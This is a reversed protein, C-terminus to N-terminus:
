DGGLLNATLDSPSREQMRKVKEIAQEESLKYVRMHYEVQDIVGSSLELLAVKRIETDDEFISDDFNVTIDLNEIDFSQGDFNNAIELVSYTLDVLARDLILEDKGITAFLEVNDSSVETATKQVTGNTFKYFTPGFGIAMSFMNLFDNIGIQHEATRLQMNIEKIPEQGDEFNMGYFEFDNDDFVEIKNSTDGNIKKSMILDDNIFIRKKGAIFENTYSDYAIDISQMQDIANAFLSIGMGNHPDYNNVIAPKIIQFPPTFSNFAFIEPVEEDIEILNVKNKVLEAKYNMIVYTGLEVDTLIQENQMKETYRRYISIDFTSKDELKNETVFACEIVIGNEVLLPFIMDGTIYQILIRTGSYDSIIDQIFAGTGLANTLEILENSKIKFNNKFLVKNLYEQAADDSISISVKENMEYNAKDACAIRAMGLTKRERKVKTIGNYQTYNHFSKVKGRYWSYWEDIKEYFNTNSATQSEYVESIIKILDKNM